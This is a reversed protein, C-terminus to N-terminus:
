PWDCLAVYSLKEEYLVDSKCLFEKEEETNTRASRCWKKERSPLCMQKCGWGRERMHVFLDHDEKFLLAVLLKIQELVPM